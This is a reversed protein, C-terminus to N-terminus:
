RDILGIYQQYQEHNKEAEQWIVEWDMCMRDFGNILPKDPIQEERMDMQCLISERLYNLCHAVLPSSTSPFESDGAHYRRIINLCQLQHFVAVTYTSVSGDLHGERILHEGSPLMHNWGDQNAGYLASRRVFHMTVKDLDSPSWKGHLCTTCFRIDLSRWFPLPVSFLGILICFFVLTFCRLRQDRNPSSTLLHSAKSM